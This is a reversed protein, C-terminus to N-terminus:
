RIGQFSSVTRAWRYHIPFRDTFKRKYWKCFVDRSAGATLTSNGGKWGLSSPNATLTVSWGGYNRYKPELTRDTLVEFSYQVADSVIRGAEYGGQLSMVAM